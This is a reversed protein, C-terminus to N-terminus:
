MAIWVKKIKMKKGKEILAHIFTIESIFIALTPDSSAIWVFAENKQTDSSFHFLKEKENGDVDLSHCFLPSISYKVDHM